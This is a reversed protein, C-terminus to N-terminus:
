VAQQELVAGTFYAYVVREAAQIAQAVTPKHHRPDDGDFKIRDPSRRYGARTFMPGQGTFSNAGWTYVPKDDTSTPAYDVWLMMSVNRYVKRRYYLRKGSSPKWNPFLEIIDQETFDRTDDSHKRCVTDNAFDTWDRLFAWGCLECHKGFPAECYSCLHVATHNLTGCKHCTRVPAEGFTEQKDRAELTWEVEEEPFGGCEIWNACMDIVIGYEKDPHSRMARGVMQRYLALSKTPRVILVCRAEPVDVGETAIQVNVLFQLEQRRFAMMTAQREEQDMKSHIFGARKGRQLLEQYFAEGNPINITYVITQAQEGKQEWAEIARKIYVKREDAVDTYDRGGGGSGELRNPTGYYRMKALYGSDQLEPIQPGVELHQWVPTFSQKKSLLWPTATLGMVESDVAEPVKSWVKSAANHHAEDIVVRWVLERIQKGLDDDLHRALYQVTMLYCVDYEVPELTKPNTRVKFGAERLRRSTQDVLEKRHTVWMGPGIWARGFQLWAIALETKGGGTPLQVIVRAKEAKHRAYVDEARHLLETQYPYLQIDM